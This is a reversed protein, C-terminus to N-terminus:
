HDFDIFAQTEEPTYKLLATTYKFDNSSQYQNTM